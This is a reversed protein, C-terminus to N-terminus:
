KKESKELNRALQLHQKLIPILKAVLGRVQPDQLKEHAQTLTEIAKTHGKEMAKLFATDFEGGQAMQLKEMMQKEEQAQQKEEPTTPNPEMLKIGEAKALETVKKDAFQHDNRLRRGYARVDSSQGKEMAMQGAKIEMQNVHHMKSLVKTEMQKESPM